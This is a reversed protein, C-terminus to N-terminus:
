ASDFFSLTLLEIGRRGFLNAAMAVGDVITWFLWSDSTFVPGDARGNARMASKNVLEARSVKIASWQALENAPM